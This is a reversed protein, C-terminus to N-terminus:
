GTWKVNELRNFNEWVKEKLEEVAINKLLAGQSYINKLEYESEDTEFFIRDVPLHKYSDLAKAKKNFLFAGFSFLFNAKSLQETEQLNGNYGHLIWPQRPHLKKHIRIVENYAKVCHIIMPKDYEEAMFAQAEFVRIQEDFNTEANPDPGTEGVFIVHDFELADEALELAENNEEKSKLCWPHLGVSLFNKGNFAAFNDGPFLNRVSVIDSKQNIHHTHVDIYPLPTQSM